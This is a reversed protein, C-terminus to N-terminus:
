IRTANALSFRFLVCVRPCPGGPGSVVVWTWLPTVPGRILVDGGGQQGPHCRGGTRVPSSGVCSEWPM